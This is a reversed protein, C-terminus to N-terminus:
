RVIDFYRGKEAQWGKASFAGTGVRANKSFTEHHDCSPTYYSAIRPMPMHMSM